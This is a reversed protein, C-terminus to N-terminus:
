SGDPHELNQPLFRVSFPLIEVVEQPEEFSLEEQGSPVYIPLPQVKSVAEDDKAEGVRRGFRRVLPGV